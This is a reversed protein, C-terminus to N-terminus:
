SVPDLDVVGSTVVAHAQFNKTFALIDKRQAVTARTPLWYKTQSRVVYAVKPVAAYGAETSGAVTELVPVAVDYTEVLVGNAMMSKAFNEFTAVLQRRGVAIGTSNDNYTAIIKDSKSDYKVGATNFTVAVPAAQGDNLVVNAQNAM